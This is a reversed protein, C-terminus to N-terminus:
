DYWSRCELTQQDVRCVDANNFFQSFALAAQMNSATGALGELTVRYDKREASVAYGHAQFEPHESLFAKFEQVTPSNNQCEDLAIVGMQILMDLAYFDIGAFPCTGGSYTPGAEGFLIGDRAKIAVISRNLENTM